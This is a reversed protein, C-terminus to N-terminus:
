YSFGLLDQESVWRRVLKVAPILAIGLREERSIPPKCVETFYQLLTSADEVPRRETRALPTHVSFERRQLDSNYRSRLGVGTFGEYAYWGLSGSGVAVIPLSYVRLADVTSKIFAATAYCGRSFFNNHSDVASVISGPRSRSPTSLICVKTVDDGDFADCGCSERFKGTGFTKNPNVKLGLHELTEVVLVGADAPVIIDDGYVRVEKSVARISKATHPMERQSIICGIAIMSFLITQVPFTLASGMTSFKRLVLYEPLKRDITNLVVRTRVAYFARLLSINRRFTREILWCSIRDSASSLDITWHSQSHSAALALDANRKQSKLNVTHRLSTGKMKSVLFDLIGQQCWQHATPEAAILRPGSITKPVALLKAFPEGDLLFLRDNTDVHEKLAEDLNHYGHIQRPFVSDLRDSWNSFRYKTDGKRLDSVAGPGHKTRWETSIFEGFESSIVDATYQVAALARGVPIAFPDESEDHARLFLPSTDDCLSVSSDFGINTYRGNWENTPLFVEQDTKFFENVQEWTSSDSCQMKYRKALSYLSRLFFICRKDPDVRLVGNRDFVRLVMGKFLRPIPSGAAFSRQHPLGSRTLRELALCLDFHKGMAPLDKQLFLPGRAEVASLLRKYDRGCEAHLSPYENVIDSLMAAYTGLLYKVYSEM